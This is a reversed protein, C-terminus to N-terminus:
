KPPEFSELKLNYRQRMEETRHGAIRDDKADSIGKRKLDHVTWYVHGLNDALMKKKLRTMASKFSGSKMKNGSQNPILYLSRLKRKRALDMAEKHAALLRDSWRIVTTRSGKRREVVIGEDTISSLTLDTIEISRSALLYAFEFFVPLYDAGHMRAYQLQINYEKDTVYRDRKNEKHLEIGICPNTDIGLNEHYQIGYTISASLVRFQGNVQSLGSYGRDNYDKLMKDLLQRLLPKSLETLLLHGVTAQVNNITLPFKLFKKLKQEYDIQTKPKIKQFRSSKFYERALWALTGKDPDGASEIREKAALYARLIKKEPDGISGLRIPKVYGFKDTEFRGRKAAPIYARYVIRGNAEKVYKPWKTKSM